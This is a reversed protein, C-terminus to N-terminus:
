KKEVFKEYPRGEMGGDMFRVDKFGAGELITQAAYARLGAKCHTVIKKDRSIEQIRRRLTGLPILKVRPDEIRTQKYEEPSRADLFTFPDDRDLMGKVEQPTQPHAIGEM